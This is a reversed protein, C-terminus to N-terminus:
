GDELSPVAQLDQLTRASTEPTLSAFGSQALEEETLAELNWYWYGPNERCTEAMSPPTNAMIFPIVNGGMYWRPVGVPVFPLAYTNRFADLLWKEGVGTIAKAGLRTAEAWGMRYLHEIIGKSRVRPDVVISSLECMPEEDTHDIRTFKGVPLLEFSGFIARITGVIQDREDVVAHFRSYGAYEVLEEVQQRSSAATYGLEVYVEYVFREAESWREGGSIVEMRHEPLLDPPRGSRRPGPAIKRGTPALERLDIIVEDGERTVEPAGTALAAEDDLNLLEQPSGEPQPPTVEDDM